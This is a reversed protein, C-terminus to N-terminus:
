AARHEALARRLRAAYADKSIGLVLALDALSADPHEVRARLVDRYKPEATPLAHRAAEVTEAAAGLTRAANASLFVPPAEQPPPPLLHESCRGRRRAVKACGPYDCRPKDRRRVEWPPLPEVGPLNGRERRKQCRKCLGRQAARHRCAPNVCAAEGPQALMAPNQSLPRDPPPVAAPRVPIGYAALASKVADRGCGKMAGIERLTHRRYLDALAERDWAIRPGTPRPRDAAIGHAERAVGLNGLMAAFTARNVGLERAAGVLGYERVLSVAREATLDALVRKRVGPRIPIDHRALAQRVAAEICGVEAAIAHLSAGQEAYRQRLWEGDALQPYRPRSSRTM